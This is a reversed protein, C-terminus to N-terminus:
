KRVSQHWWRRVSHQDHVANQQSLVPLWFQDVYNQYGTEIRNKAIVNQPSIFSRLLMELLKVHFVAAFVLQCLYPVFHRWQRATYLKDHLPRPAATCSTGGGDGGSASGCRGSTASDRSACAAACGSSTWSRVAWLARSLTRRSASGPCRCARPSRWSSRGWRPWLAPAGVSKLSCWNEGNESLM